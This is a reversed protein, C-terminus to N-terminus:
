RATGAAFSDIFRRQAILFAVILPATTLMTAAMLPGYSTGAEEDRFALIGLPPPMLETATVAITPWFLDNWRGVLSLIAIAALTPKSLPIMVRWVISWNGFGDVRAAHVLDDPITRFMQYLLFIATPSVVGPLILAAYNDLIGLRYCLFFLPVSLVERPLLLALLVLALILRRGRFEAKALAFAVPAGFAIQCALTAACVLVGNLLFRPLPTQTLAASYNAYAASFDIDLSVIGLAAKDPPMLSLLAMWAFPSAVALTTVTLALHRASERGKM